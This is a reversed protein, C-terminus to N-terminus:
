LVHMHSADMHLPDHYPPSHSATETDSATPKVGDIEPASTIDKGEAGIFVQVVDEHSLYNWRDYQWIVYTYWKNGELVTTETFKWSSDDESLEKSLAVVAKDTETGSTVFGEMAGKHVIGSADFHIKGEYRKIVVTAGKEGNGQLTPTTDSTKFTEVPLGDYKTHNDDLSSSWLANVKSSDDVVKVNSLDTVETDGVYDFPQSSDSFTGKEGQLVVLHHTENDDIFQIKGSSVTVSWTGDAYATTKAIPFIEVKDDSAGSYFKDTHSDTTGRHVSTATESDFVYVTAGPEAGSGHITLTKYDKPISDGSKIEESRERASNSVFVGNFGFGGHGPGTDFEGDGDNSEFVGAAVAVTGIAAVAGAALLGSTGLLGGTGGLSAGAPGGATSEVEVMPIPQVVGASASGANLAAAENAAVDGGDSEVAPKDDDADIFYGSVVVTEGDKFVLVLDDGRRKYCEVGNELSRPQFRQQEQTTM